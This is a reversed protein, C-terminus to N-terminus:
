CNLIIPFLQHFQITFHSLLLFLYRQNSFHIERMKGKTTCFHLGYVLFEVGRDNIKKILISPIWHLFFRSEEWFSLDGM